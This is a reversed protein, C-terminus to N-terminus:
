YKFIDDSDDKKDSGNSDGYTFIDDADPQSFVRQTKATATGMIGRKQLKKYHFCGLVFVVIALGLVVLKPYLMNYVVDLNILQNRANQSTTLFSDKDLLTSVTTDTVERINEVFKGDTNSVLNQFTDASTNIVCKSSDASQSYGWGKSFTGSFFFATPIGQLRFPTHDSGQIKEYYGYGFSDMGVFVGKGYPKEIISNSHSLFLDAIDTHKNECHLYLNDGGCITDFNIMLLVNNKRAQSMSNAFSYSGLLGQEEGGFAVFTIDFPIVSSTECLRKYTFYLAAIGGANDSAGQSGDDADYHAGIIVRLETSPNDLTTIVNATTYNETKVSVVAAQSKGIVADFKDKLWEAVAIENSTGSRSSFNQCFEQVFAYEETTTYDTTEEAFVQNSRTFSPVVLTLGIVAIFIFAFIKKM